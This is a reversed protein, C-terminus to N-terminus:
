FMLHLTVGGGSITKVLSLIYMRFRLLCSLVYQGSFLNGSGLNINSEPRDVLSVGEGIEDGVGASYPTAWKIIIKITTQKQSTYYAGRTNRASNNKPKKQVIFKGIEGGGGWLNWCFKQHLLQFGTGERDVGHGSSDFGSLPPPPPPLYCVYM